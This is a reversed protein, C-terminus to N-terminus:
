LCKKHKYNLCKEIFYQPMEPCSYFHIHAYAGLVNGTSAGCKWEKLLVGDRIKAVNYALKDEDIGEVKSRHFEHGRMTWGQKGIVTDRNLEIDVYGFRQLRKTMESVGEFVHLMEFSEKEFNVIAENLYMFGGCEAYTPIGDNILKRLSTRMSTNNNIEKAFIEPFGGGFLLGDLNHPVQDDEVPSFPILEAGMAELIELNDEYYFNFAKDRAIGIRVPERKVIFSTDFTYDLEKASDAIDILKEFDITELAMKGLENIKENLTKLEGAPVLGLHRSGLQINENKKMYGVCPINLDREIATRILNYHHQGSVKNVIVGALYVDEDYTQYGKVMAAASASMGSGDIILVVPTKLIKSVHATSGTDKQTSAGDFLGMVGEILGIDANKFSNTFAHQVGAEGMMFIDLNRSKRGTIHTHFAPDIYDPGVKYPQVIVGKQKLASMIGLTISTKGVNSSTGALILRKM